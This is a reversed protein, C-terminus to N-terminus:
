RTVWIIDSYTTTQGVFTFPELQSVKFGQMYKEIAIKLLAIEAKLKWHEGKADFVMVFLRNKLHHRQQNSQHKYLWAILERKHQQAYSCSANFGKPFVSTKHDFPLNDIFFDKNKDKENTVAVVQKSQNFIHEVAQASWFNYWRNIAYYFIEHKNLKHTAATAAIKPILEEWHLINYIYNTYGDWVNNQKRRWVYQYDWRKKLEYEINVLSHKM